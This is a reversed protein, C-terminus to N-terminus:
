KRFRRTLGEAIVVKINQENLMWYENGMFPTPYVAREDFIIDDGEQVFECEPGCKEVRGYFVNNELQDIMGTDPNIFTDTMELENEKVIKKYPNEKYITILINNMIPYIEKM